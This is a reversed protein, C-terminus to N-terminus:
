SRPQRKPDSVVQYLLAAAGQIRSQGAQPGNTIVDGFTTRLKTVIEDRQKANMALRSMLGTSPDAEVAALTVAIAAQIVLQGAEEAKITLEATRESATGPKFTGDAIENLTRALLKTRAAQVDALSSYAMNAAQASVSVAEIQSAEFPSVTSRACLFDNQARRFRVMAEVDTEKSQDNPEPIAMITSLAETFALLYSHVSTLDPKTAALCQATAVSGTLLILLLVAISRLITLLRM